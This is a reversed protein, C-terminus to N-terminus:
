EYKVFGNYIWLGMPFPYRIGFISNNPAKDLAANVEELATEGVPTPTYNKVVTPKQGIYLIEDKPLNRTTSCGALLLIIGTMYTILQKM